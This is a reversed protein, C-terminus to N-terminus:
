ELVKELKQDVYSDNTDTYYMAAEIIYIAASSSEFALGALRNIDDESFFPTSKPGEMLTRNMQVRKPAKELAIRARTIVGFQGLGGLAAFFLDSSKEHSCTVMEGTGTVVDLELVNTIQPGHRFAQGGIGANSLMGGVTIRLYDTWVLPALGHELTARLVDIWLQEGGADVYDASVNIRRHQGRGMALMDVVVGGPALSQGRVSHGQGHPSVPFPAPSSMSYQILAAIDVPMAPHLVAEPAAKVIRGFDSSARATSNRDTRIKSAIGLGFLDRPLGGEPMPRLKGTVVCVFSAMGILLSVFRTRAM